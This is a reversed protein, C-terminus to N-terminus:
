LQTALVDIESKINNIEAEQLEILKILKDHVAKLKDATSQSTARNHEEVVERDETVIQNRISVRVNYERVLNNHSKLKAPSDFSWGRYYLPNQSKPVTSGGTTELALYEGSAVEALVWAHNSELINLVATDKNGVVIKANIGQAKLMNWVESAMDGCIFMDTTSYEHTEYYNRVIKKVAEEPTAGGLDYQEQLGGVKGELEAIKAQAAQLADGTTDREAALGKAEGQLRDIQEKTKVLQAAIQEYQEQSISSCGSLMCSVLIILTTLILVVKRRM